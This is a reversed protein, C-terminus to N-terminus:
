NTRENTYYFKPYRILLVDHLCFFLKARILNQTNYQCKLFVGSLLISIEQYVDLMKMSHFVFNIKGM